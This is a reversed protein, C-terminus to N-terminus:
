ANDLRKRQGLCINNDYKKVYMYKYVRSYMVTSLCSLKRKEEVKQANYCQSKCLNFSVCEIICM